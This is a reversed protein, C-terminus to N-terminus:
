AGGTAVYVRTLPFKHRWQPELEEYHALFIDIFRDADILVLDADNQQVHRADNSFGGLSVLVGKEPGNLLGRLQKVVPGGVTSTGSKCQIKLLPPQVGLPDPHAVVDVGLDHTGQQTTATYGMARFVAAVVEEFETGTRVWQRLLYDKTEEIAREALNFADAASELEVLDASGGEDDDGPLETGVCSGLGGDMAEAGDRAGLVTGSKPVLRRRRREGLGTVNPGEISADSALVRQVEELHEDSTSVSSFAGFSHLAAESFVIRPVTKLWRVPRINSYDHGMLDADDSAWRYPGTIEGIMIERSGKVPYVVIEGVSMEHAFRFVQGYSANVRGPSWDPYARHMAIKMKERTDHPSLDGIRTWGICIFGERRARAAIKAQNSIHVVWLRTNTNSM